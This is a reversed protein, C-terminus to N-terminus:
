HENRSGLLTHLLALGQALTLALIAAWVAQQGRAVEEVQPSPPTVIQVVEGQNLAFPDQGEAFLRAAEGPSLVEPRYVDSNVMAFTSGDPRVYTEVRARRANLIDYVYVERTLVSIVIALPLALVVGLIGFLAGGIIQAILISAAPLEIQRAMIRPMLLNSQIQQTILYGLITFPVLVADEALAIIVAPLLAILAGFNPVFEMLGSIVGLAFANPLRLIFGTLITIMTASTVMSISQGIFWRRLTRGLMEFIVLARPRYGRPVLTLVGELYSGPETIFFVAIFFTLVLSTIAGGVGTLFPFVDQSLNAVQEVVFDSLNGESFNDWDVRPLWTHLDTQQDYELQADEVFSPLSQVLDAVRLVIVPVVLVLALVLVLITGALSLGISLGRKFGHRELWTVPLQLINAILLALFTLLLVQRLEWLALVLVILLLTVLVRLSWAGLSLRESVPNM